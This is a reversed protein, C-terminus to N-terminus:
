EVQAVGAGLVVLSVVTVGVHQPVFSVLFPSPAILFFAIGMTIFGGFSHSLLESHEFM